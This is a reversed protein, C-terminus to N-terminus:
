RGRADPARSSLTGRVHHVALERRSGVGLKRLISAMQNAVTRVSTRRAAAIEANSKGHIALEAVEAESRTLPTDRELDMREVPYSAILLEVGGIAVEVVRLDPPPRDVDRPERRRRLAVVEQAGTANAGKSGAKSGDM